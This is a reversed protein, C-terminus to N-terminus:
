VYKEIEPILDTFLQEKSFISYDVGVQNLRNSLNDSVTRSTYFIVPITSNKIFKEFLVVGVSYGNDTKYKTGEILLTPHSPIMIDIILLDYSHDEKSLRSMIEEPTKVIEIYANTQKIIEIRDYDVTQRNDELWLINM